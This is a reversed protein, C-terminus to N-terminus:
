TEKPMDVIVNSIMDDPRIELLLRRLLQVVDDLVGLLLLLLLRGLKPLSAWMQAPSPEGRGAAWKGGRGHRRGACACECTCLRTCARVGGGDMALVHVCM